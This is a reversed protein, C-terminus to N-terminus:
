HINSAYILDDDGCFNLSILKNYVLVAWLIPLVIIVVLIWVM